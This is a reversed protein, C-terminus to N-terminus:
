YVAESKERQLLTKSRCSANRRGLFKHSFLHSWFDDLAVVITVNLWLQLVKSPFRRLLAILTSLSDKRVGVEIVFLRCDSRASFGQQSIMAAVLAEVSKRWNISEPMGHVLDYLPLQRFGLLLLIPEVGVSILSM